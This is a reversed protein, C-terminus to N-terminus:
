EPEIAVIKRSSDANEEVKLRGRAFLRICEPYLKWEQQLGKQKVQDLTDGPEIAFCQQGIIPGTDEGYDVFHVTCGGVKCGHRYTDGYGDVGPFAPLLAPHINMLRPKNHHINVRDIFYPTVMRMFGALIILDYPYQAMEKLLAAEALIRPVLFKEAKERGSDGAYFGQRAQIDDFNCDAPLSFGEPNQRYNKIIRPYDVVFSPIGHNEARALGKARPNDTGVFVVKAGTEGKNCADIVAGLNTGGGSILAGVRIPEAM